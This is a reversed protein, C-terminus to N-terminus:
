NRNKSYFSHCFEFSALLSVKTGRLVRRYAGFYGLLLLIHVFQFVAGWSDFSKPDDSKGIILLFLRAITFIFLDLIFFTVACYLFMSWRKKWRYHRRVPAYKSMTKSLRFHLWVQLLLCLIFLRFGVWTGWSFDKWNLNASIFLGFSGVFGAGCAITNKWMLGDEVEELERPVVPRGQQPTIESSRRKVLATEHNEGGESERESEREPTVEVPKAVEIDEMRLENATDTTAIAEKERERERERESDSEIESEEMMEVKEVDGRKGEGKEMRDEVGSGVEGEGSVHEDQVRDEEESDDESTGSSMLEDSERHLYVVASLAMPVDIKLRYYVFITIMLYAATVLNFGSSYVFSAPFNKAFQQVSPFKQNAEGDFIFYLIIVMVVISPIARIVFVPLEEPHDYMRMLGPASFVRRRDM